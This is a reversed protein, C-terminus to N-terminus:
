RAVDVPMVIGTYIILFIVAVVIVFITLARRLAQENDLPERVIPPPMVRAPKPSRPKLYITHRTKLYWWWRM